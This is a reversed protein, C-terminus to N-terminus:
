FQYRLGAQYKLRDYAFLDLNSDNDIFSLDTSFNLNRNIQWLWGASASFLTDERKRNFIPAPAQNESEHLSLKVYPIHGPRFAFQEIL